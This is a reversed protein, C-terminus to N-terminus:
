ESCCEDETCTCPDCTCNENKCKKNGQPCVIDGKLWQEKGDPMTKETHSNKNVTTNLLIGM